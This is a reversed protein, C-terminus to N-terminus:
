LSNKGRPNVDPSLIRQFDGFMEIDLNEIESPYSPSLNFLFTPPLSHSDDAATGSFFIHRLNFNM